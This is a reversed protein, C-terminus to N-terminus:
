LKIHRRFVIQFLFNAIKSLKKQNMANLKAGGTPFYLLFINGVRKIKM